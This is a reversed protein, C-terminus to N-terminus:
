GAPVPDAFMDGPTFDIRDVVGHTEAMERAVKLVEPRDWIVARLTPNVRLLAISYLGTGGGVDLLKRAGPLPLNKALAPAVIRARGALALTLRRGSAEHDMAPATMPATKPASQHAHPM